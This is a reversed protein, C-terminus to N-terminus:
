DLICYYIYYPLDKKFSAYPGGFTLAGTEPDFIYGQNDTGFTGNPRLIPTAKNTGTDSQYGGLGWYLTSDPDPIESVAIFLFYNKGEPVPTLNITEQNEGTVNESPTFTVFETINGPPPVQVSLNLTNYDAVNMEYSGNETIAASDSGSPFHTINKFLTRKPDKVNEYTVFDSDNKTIYISM